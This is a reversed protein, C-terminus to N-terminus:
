ELNHDVNVKNCFGICGNKETAVKVPKCFLVDENMETTIIFGNVELYRLSENFVPEYLTIPEKGILHYECILFFIESAFGTLILREICDSCFTCM